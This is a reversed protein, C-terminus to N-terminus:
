SPFEIANELGQAPHSPSLLAIFQLHPSAHANPSWFEFIPSVKTPRLFTEDLAKEKLGDVIAQVERRLDLFRTMEVEGYDDDGDHGDDHDDDHNTSSMGASFTL